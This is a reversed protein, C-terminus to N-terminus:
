LKLRPLFRDAYDVGRPVLAGVEQKGSLGNCLDIFSKEAGGIAPSLLVRAIKM